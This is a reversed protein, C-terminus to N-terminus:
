RRASSPAGTPASGEGGYSISFSAPAVQFQMAVGAKFDVGLNFGGRLFYFLIGVAFMAASFGFFWYRTRQFRIVAKM